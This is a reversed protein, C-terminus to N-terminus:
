KREQVKTVFMGNLDIVRYVGPLGEVPSIHYGESTRFTEEDEQQIIDFISGDFAKAKFPESM